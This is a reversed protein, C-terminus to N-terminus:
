NTVGCNVIMTHNKEFKMKEFHKRRLRLILRQSLPFAARGTETDLPEIKDIVYEKGHWVVTCGEVALVNKHWDVDHGYTLEIVFGDEVPCVIIPTEYPKGSRRGVHRVLTFPGRSSRAIRRTVPNLTHKLVVFLGKRLRQQVNM